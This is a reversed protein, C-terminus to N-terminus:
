HIFASGSVVEAAAPGGYASQIGSSSAASAGAAALRQANAEAIAKDRAAAAALERAAFESLAQADQQNALATALEEDADVAAEAEEVELAARQMREVAIAQVELATKTDLPDGPPTEGGVAREEPSLPGPQPQEEYLGILDTLDPSRSQPAIDMPSVGLGPEADDGERPSPSPSRKVPPLSNDEEKLGGQEAGGAHEDSPRLMHHILFQVKRGCLASTMMVRGYEGMGCVM